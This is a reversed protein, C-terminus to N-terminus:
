AFNIRYKSGAQILVDDLARVLAQFSTDASLPLWEYKIKRWLIEILNLEPCSPPLFKLSLGRQAWTEIRTTFEGSTHTSANNIVVLTPKTILQSLSGFCLIVIPTDITGEFVFPHFQHHLGLFALVNLRPGHAAPVELTQGVPQWAYPVCPQWSFGAEDYYYLDCQGTAAQARLTALEAQAARFTEEERQSRLSTRIRKWVLGGKKLLRKLTDRSIKKGTASAIPELSQRPSRPEQLALQAAQQQEPDTLTPPRGSRPDDDLKEVGGGEWRDLWASVSDRAVEYIDTIQDISYQRESLLIAHARMRTRASPHETMAQKLM